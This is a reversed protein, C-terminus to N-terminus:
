NGTSFLFYYVLGLVVSVPITAVAIKFMFVILQSMPIDFGTIVVGEGSSTDKCDKCIVRDPTGYNYSIEKSCVGCRM